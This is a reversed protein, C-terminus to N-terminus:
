HTPAPAQAQAQLWQWLARVQGGTMGRLAPMSRTMDGARQRVHLALLTRGSLDERESPDTLEPNEGKFKTMWAESYIPYPAVFDWGMGGGVGRVALCLVCSGVYVDRGPTASPGADFRALWGARNVLEVAHLSDAYRWPSFDGRTSELMSPLSPDSVVIKNGHITVPRRDDRTPPRHLAVLEGPHLPKTANAANARIVQPAARKMYAADRFPIPVLLGNDFHLLALDLDAASSSERWLRELPVGRMRMPQDYQADNGTWERTPLADLDVKRGLSREGRANTVYVTVYRGEEAVALRAVGAVLLTVVLAHLVLVPSFDISALSKSSPM